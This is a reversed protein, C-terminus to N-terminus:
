GPPHASPPEGSGDPASTEIDDQKVARAIVFEGPIQYGTGQRYPAISELYERHVVDRTAQDFRSYPLAVPGAAFAAGCASEDSDYSLTTAIREVEIDTFRAGTLAYHLSEGNGLQFFLPCVESAVQREVIPFLEAWGCHARAGWVAVVARGGARLVHHMQDLARGPDTVYMLGLACLVVDFTAAGLGLEEADCREATVQSLGRERAAARIRDVMAESIDTGVVRGGPGVREAAQFAVLGTGCAVDLVHEGERLDALALVRDQPEKLQRAWYQEYCAAAKDWGYRQVRRQLRADM